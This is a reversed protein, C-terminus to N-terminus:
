LSASPAAQSCHAGRPTRGRGRLGLGIGQGPEPSGVHAGSALGAFDMGETAAILQPDEKKSQAVTENSIANALAIMAVTFLVLAAIIGMFTDFFIEDQTRSM